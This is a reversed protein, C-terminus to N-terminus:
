GIQATAEDAHEVRNVRRERAQRMSEALCSARANMYRQTTTISSHGALLQACRTVEDACPSAQRRRERTQPQNGIENKSAQKTAVREYRPSAYVPVDHGDSRTIVRVLQEPVYRYSHIFWGSDRREWVRTTDVCFRRIEV